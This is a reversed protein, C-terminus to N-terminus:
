ALCPVVIVGELTGDITGEGGSESPDFRVKYTAV